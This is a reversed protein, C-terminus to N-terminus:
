QLDQICDLSAQSSAQTAHGSQPDCIFNEEVCAYSAQNTSVKAVEPDPVRVIRQLCEDRSPGALHECCQQQAQTAKAYTDGHHGGGCAGLTAVLTLSAIWRLTAAVTTRVPTNIRECGPESVAQQATILNALYADAPTSITGTM